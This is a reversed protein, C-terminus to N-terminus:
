ILAVAGGATISEANTGWVNNKFVSSVKEWAAAYPIKNFFSSVIGNFNVTTIDNIAEINIKNDVTIEANKAIYADADNTYDIYTVAGAGGIKTSNNNSQAWSDVLEDLGSTKSLSAFFINLTIGLGSDDSWSTQWPITNKAKINLNNTKITNSTENNTEITNSTENNTGGVFAVANNEVFGVNIALAGTKDDQASVSGDASTRANQYAMANVKVRSITEASVNLSNAQKNKCGAVNGTVSAQAQSDTILVATAANLSFNKDKGPLEKLDIKSNTKKLVKTIILEPLIKFALGSFAKGLFSDGSYSEATSTDQEYYTNEGDEKYLTNLASVRIDGDAYIDGQVDTIAKTDAMTVAASLGLENISGGACPANTLSRVSKSDISVDGLANLDSDSNITVGVDSNLDAWNFAITGPVKGSLFSLELYSQDIKNKGYANINIDDNAKLNSNNIKIKSIADSQGFTFSFNILGIGTTIIESNAETYVNICGHATEKDSEVVKTGGVAELDSDTINV